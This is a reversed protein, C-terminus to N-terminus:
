SIIPLMNCASLNSLVLHVQLSEALSPHQSLNFNSFVPIHTYFNTLFFVFHNKGPLKLLNGTGAHGLRDDEKQLYSAYHDGSRHWNFRFTVNQANGGDRNIDDGLLYAHGHHAGKRVSNPSSFLLSCFLLTKKREKKSFACSVAFARLFNNLLNFYINEM